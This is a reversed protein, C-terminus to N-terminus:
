NNPYALADEWPLAAVLVLMLLEARLVVFLLLLTVGLGILAAVPNWASVFALPIAVMAAPVALGRGTLLAGM